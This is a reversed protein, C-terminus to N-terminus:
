WRDATAMALRPIEWTGSPRRTNGPKVTRSFRTRPVEFRALTRRSSMSASMPRINLSKGSRSRSFCASPQVSEPPCCCISAMARPRIARGLTRKISSGDRPKAGMRTWSTNRTILSILAVPPVVIRRTSCFAVMASATECRPNRSPSPVCRGALAQSLGGASDGPVPRRGRPRCLVNAFRAGRRQELPPPARKTRMTTSRNRWRAGAKGVGLGDAISM